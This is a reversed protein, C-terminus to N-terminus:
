DEDEEGDKKDLHETEIEHLILSANIPVKALQPLDAIANEVFLLLNLPGIAKICLGNILDCYAINAVHLSDNIITFARKVVLIIFDRDLVIKVEIIFVLHPFPLALSLVHCVLPLTSQAELEEFILLLQDLNWVTLV